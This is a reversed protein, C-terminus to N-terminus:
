LMQEGVRPKRQLVGDISKKKNAGSCPFGQGVKKRRTDMGASSEQKGM